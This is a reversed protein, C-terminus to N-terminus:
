FEAELGIKWINEDKELHYLISLTGKVVSMAKVHDKDIFIIEDLKANVRSNVVIYTFYDKLTEIKYSYGRKKFMDTYRQLLAPDSYYEIYAQTLYNLWTQYDKESIVKNLNSIVDQINDFTETYIEETVIFEEEVPEEVKPEEVIQPEEEIPVPEEIVPETETGSTEDTTTCSTSMFLAPLLLLAFILRLKM